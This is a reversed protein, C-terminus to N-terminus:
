GTKATDLQNPRCAILYVSDIQGLGRKSPCPDFQEGDIILIAHLPADVARDEDPPCGLAIVPMWPPVREVRSSKLIVLGAGRPKLWRELHHAWFGGFEAVFDPVDEYPLDLAMALCCRICDKTTRQQVLKAREPPIAIVEWNHNRFGAHQCATVRYGSSELYDAFRRVAAKQEDREAEFGFYYPDGPKKKLVARAANAARIRQEFQEIEDPTYPEITQSVPRAGM